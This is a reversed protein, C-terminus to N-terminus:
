LNGLALRRAEAMAAVARPDAASQRIAIQARERDHADAAEAEGAETEEGGFRRLLTATRTAEGLSTIHHWYWRGERRWWWLEISPRGDRLKRYVKLLEDKSIGDGFLAVAPRCGTQAAYQLSQRVAERWKTWREVEFVVQETLVDARGYGLNVETAGKVQAALRDRLAHETLTVAATGPQHGIVERGIPVRVEVRTYRRARTRTGPKPTSPAKRTPPATCDDRHGQTSIHCGCERCRGQGRPPVFPQPVFTAAPALIPEGFLVGQDPHHAGNRKV